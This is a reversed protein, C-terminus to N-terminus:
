IKLDAYRPDSYDGFCEPRHRHDSRYGLGCDPSDDDAPDAPYPAVDVM